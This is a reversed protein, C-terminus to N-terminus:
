GAVPLMRRLVGDRFVYRHVLAALAHGGVLYMMTWAVINHVGELTKSLEKDEVLPSDLTFLGFFSLGHGELWQMGFGLAVQALLLGYLAWHMIKSAIRTAAPGEDPLRRAAFWRWLLRLVIMAALAIGLSVHVGQLSRLWWDRPAYTWLMASGFLAFVLLATIWHFGITVADYRDHATPAAPTEPPLYVKTM